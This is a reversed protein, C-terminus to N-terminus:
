STPLRVCVIVLVLPYSAKREVMCPCLHSCCVTVFFYVFCVCPVGIVFFAQTFVTICFIIFWGERSCSHTDDDMKRIHLLSTVDYIELLKLHLNAPLTFMDSQILM